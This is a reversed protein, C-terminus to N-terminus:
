MFSTMGCAGLPVYWMWSDMKTNWFYTNFTLLQTRWSCVVQEGHQLCPGAPEEQRARTASLWGWCSFGSGGQMHWGQPWASRREWMNVAWQKSIKTCHPLSRSPRLLQKLPCRLEPQTIEALLKTSIHNVYRIIWGTLPHLATNKQINM